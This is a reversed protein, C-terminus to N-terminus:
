TSAQELAMPVDVFEEQYNPLVFRHIGRPGINKVVDLDEVVSGPAVTM